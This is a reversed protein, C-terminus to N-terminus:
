RRKYLQHCVAGSSILSVCPLLPDSSVALNSETYAGPSTINTCKCDGRLVGHISVWTSTLLVNYCGVSQLLSACRSAYNPAGQSVGSTSDGQGTRKTGLGESLGDDRKTNKSM